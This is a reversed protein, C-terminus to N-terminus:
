ITVAVFFDRSIREISINQVKYDLFLREVQEKKYLFLECRNKYRIKRQWALMGGSIPFSFFAKGKTIKMVKQIVSHPNSIYDMFGMIISYDFMMEFDYEMFDAVIFKCINKIGQKEAKQNALEIMEKSFDLGLVFEAGKNALALSYHGPGCGIDVVRKEIIPDCEKITKDYRIIMSKRFYKNVFRNLFSKKTNYIDDFDRAYLDFFTSTKKTNV